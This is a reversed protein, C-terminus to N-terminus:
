EHPFLTFLYLLANALEILLQLFAFSFQVQSWLINLRHYLSGEFEGLLWWQLLSGQVIGVSFGSGDLDEIDWFQTSTPGRTSIAQFMWMGVLDTRNDKIMCLRLSAIIHHQSMEIM